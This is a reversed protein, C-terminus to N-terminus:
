RGCEQNFHTVVSSFREQYEHSTIFACVMGRYNNPEKSNLVNLWFLYGDDDPDRRLYEVYQILVFAPNFERSKFEKIEILDLLSEARTKGSTTMAEIAQAREAAAVLGATDYLKNIFEAATMSEPYAQKFETRKVFRSAFDFIGTQMQPGGVLQSRDPMFQAYTPRQGYAAKYLRHVVFGTDQFEQEVFFAASVGIRRSQICAADSGCKAIESTWYDLGDQDPLRNLLDVYHQNVFFRPDDIPNRTPPVTDDDLITVTATGHTGLSAGVVNSLTLTFTEDGEVYADNTIFLIFSKSSEGPAFSLTGGATAYDCRHSAVGTAAICPVFIFSDNTAYDVTVAASPDGTRDITIQISGNAEPVSSSATSFQVKAPEVLPNITFTLPNSLGGGPLPNFVAVTATGASQIDSTTIQATLQTGSLFTTTRDAGNLRVVSGNVFGSGNVTLSFAAGGETASTPSLSSITPAPNPVPNIIITGSTYIASLIDANANVVERAIPSDGFAIATPGSASPPVAFTVVLIQRTGNAFSSGAPLAMAIGVRGSSASASNVNVTAPGANSGKTASVFSLQVPNFNLSFGLSNENGRSDLEINVTGNAGAQLTKGVVRIVRGGADAINYQLNSTGGGPAPNFVSVTATGPTSIDAATIQATLQNASVFSTIRSNGNFKVVSSSVFNNGNVTLTFDGGGAATSSPSLSAVTPAPNNVPLNVAVSAGGGPAPNFVTVPFTGASGVDAASIQATLQTGSVFSTPRVNGKFRVVSSSNYNTGNVTLTFAADGVTKSAPSINDLTPQPNNVSFNVASSAGGGPPPNVVTVPFTGASSLDAASIQATLQTSSVFSTARDSGNWKMVAGGIFNSGNVTLTFAAGGAIANAPTLNAIAPAPNNVNLNVANSTGGGPTPNFVTIPFPGATAIDAATLQATLQSAGVFSTPRDNGNFRVVSAGIFNTGNVTLTFAAGGTTVSSPSLNAIAPTPNNVNLNVANSTGGGPTPNFVSIPFAGATAIDAATLQATLQSAGVFSTPRDISNFRVVSAGVFNTGNVTLTFAAGGATVSAPSLASISPVPNPGIVQFNIINSSGGGPAPNFVTIHFTGANQVDAATIQATLQRTNIFTTARNSSEFRVVSGNIFNSGNVTLTFDSDGAVASTPSINNLVPIANNVPFNVANSLGGGPAPNFVTVPILAAAQIDAATIQATLHTSDIFSTTRDIGNWRVLSGNLFNSGNVTLTFAAGGATASSPALNNIAPLPNNVAFSVAASTGGGPTPNFVTVPFNGAATLDSATIQATLQNASVFSTARSNGNFRVVSGNVFSGGNVTLTFAPGGATASTPSITSLTPVPNNVPFNVAGSAGGGPAPTFVTVPFSGAAQIAAAPILATLQTANVFSTTRDISNFRVVSGNVFNNGNVTLTFDAGGATNSTPSLSGLTPAPHNFNVTGSAYTAGLINSSGDVVQRSIPQDGFSIVTSDSTSAPVSFSFVVIQRTGAPFTAGTPLALAIGVQGSAASSTNVNLTATSTDSGKVASVFSMKATDFSISFQLANEDGQADLQINATNNQAAQFTAGVVRIIRLAPNTNITFTLANSTGGGPAPNFVTVSATGPTSIDAATIQATLQTSGVFSTSRDTGKYRVISGGSFGTGNVTLTFASGGAVTSSPSLSSVTPVPNNVVVNVASSTGGGPAPNFVTIPFSGSSRIDPATIQATLQTSSVFTTTRDSNNFRVVSTNVFNSGNVTLTFAPGGATVSAPNIDTLTPVPSPMPTISVTAPTYSADLINANIDVVERAIPSDGFAITTSGNGSAPVNFTLVVIQRTGAAFSAGAPLALAIGVRGVSASSSNVNLTAGASTSDSGRTASVFTLTAPTFNISFGLANEDGQSDLEINVTGNQGAQLTTGVIRVTRTGIIATIAPYNRWLHTSFPSALWGAVGLEESAAEVYSVSPGSIEKIAARTPSANHISQHTSGRPTRAEVPSLLMGVAFVFVALTTYLLYSQVRGQTPM